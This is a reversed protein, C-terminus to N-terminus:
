SHAEETPASGAPPAPPPNPEAAQKVEGKVAQPAEEKGAAKPLQLDAAQRIEQSLEGPLAELDSLKPLQLDGAQKLEQKLEEPLKELDELQAERALRNPLDRLEESTKQVVRYTDSRYLRNLTRGLKRAGGVIDKPSFLLLVIILVLIFELPGVGLLEM